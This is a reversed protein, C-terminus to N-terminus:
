TREWVGSKGGSKRLLQVQKIKMGRDVSKGMDYVTLAAMSAATLAEMEVGTQASVKCTATIRLESEGQWDFDISVNLLPISHTLPILEDTRKAAQIAAIRAVTLVDGKEVKDSRILEALTRSMQLVAEATAERDTTHKASVDVM